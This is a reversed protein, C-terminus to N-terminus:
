DFQDPAPCSNMLLVVTTTVKPLGAHQLIDGEQLDGAAGRFTTGDDLM